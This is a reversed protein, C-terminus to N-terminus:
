NGDNQFHKSCIARLSYSHFSIRKYRQCVFISAPSGAWVQPNLYPSFLGFGLRAEAPFAPFGPSGLASEWESTDTTLASGQGCALEGQMSPMHQWEWWPFPNIQSSQEHIPVWCVARQPWHPGRAPAAGQVGRRGAWMGRGCPYWGQLPLIWGVRMVRLAGPSQAWRTSWTCRYQIMAKLIILSMVLNRTVLDPHM